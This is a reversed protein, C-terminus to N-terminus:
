KPVVNFKIEKSDFSFMPTYILEYSQGESVDYYLKGSMSKGANLEGSLAMEDYGYYDEMKNDGNYMSFDTSDVFVQEKANNKVQVDLTLVKGNTAESYEAPESYAASTITLEVDNVKVTDGVNFVKEEETAKEETPADSKTSDKKVEEVTTEGCAGLLLITFLSLLIGLQKM